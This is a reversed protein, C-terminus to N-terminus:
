KQGELPPAPVYAALAELTQEGAVLDVFQDYSIAASAVSPATTLRLAQGIAQPLQEERQAFDADSMGRVTDMVRLTDGVATNFGQSDPSVLLGALRLGMAVRLSDYEEPLLKRMAVVYTTINQALGAGGARGAERDRARKQQQTEVLKAQDKDLMGYIQQAADDVAKDTAAVAAKSERAARDAATVDAQPAKRGAQLAQDVRQISEGARAFIEDQATKQTERAAKVQELAPKIQAVQDARLQLKRAVRLPGIQAVIDKTALDPV